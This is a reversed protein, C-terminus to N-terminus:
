QKLKVQYIIKDKYCNVKFHLDIDVALDMLDLDRTIKCIKCDNSDDLFVCGNCFSTAPVIKFDIPKVSKLDIMNVRKFHYIMKIRIKLNQIQKRKM